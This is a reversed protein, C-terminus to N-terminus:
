PARKNGSPSGDEDIRFGGSLDEPIRLRLKPHLQDRSTTAPLPADWCDGTEPVYVKLGFETQVPVVRGKRVPGIDKRWQHLFGIPDVNLAFLAITLSGVVALLKAQEVRRLALALSGMGLAWFSAEAFRPQPSTFFWYLLGAAPAALFWWSLAPQRLREDGSRCLLLFFPAAVAALTLPLVVTFPQRLTGNIWAWLWFWGGLVQDVPVTIDQVRGWACLSRANRTALYEPMRWDVPLGCLTAPYVPYGSTIVGRVMWCAVVMGCGAVIWVWVRVSLARANRPIAHAAALAVLVAAGGFAASSLKVTVGVATLFFIGFVAYGLEQPHSFMGGSQGIDSCEGNGASIRGRIREGDGLLRLLESALVVGIVWVGVDPSPSSGYDRMAYHLTPVLMLADFVQWAEARVRDVVLRWVSFLIRALLFYLVLGSALHHSRQVFPGADLMAVYLFYSNNYALINRLNGLGPVIPYEHAWKVSLLHYLGTDIHRAQTTTQNALWLAAALLVLAFIWRSPRIRRAYAALDKLNWLLGASGLGVILVLARGDCPWALHWFQLLAICLGWGIWPAFVLDGADRIRLGFARRALLGLGAMVTALGAFTLAVLVVYLFVSTPLM